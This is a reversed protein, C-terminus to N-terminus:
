KISANFLRAAYQVILNNAPTSDQQLSPLHQACYAMGRTESIPVYYEVTDGCRICVVEPTPLEPAPASPLEPAPSSVLEPAPASPLAPYNLRAITEQLVTVGQAGQLRYRESWDKGSGDDPAPCITVDYGREYLDNRAKESKERGSEDGDFAIIIHGTNAPIWGVELATGIIAIADIGCEKLALADFAGECFVPSGASALAQFNFWGNSHTKYWRLYLGAERDLARAENEMGQARKEKSQLRFVKEKDELAKKHENEDMGPAWLKLSRGVFHMAGEPSSVPFIIHDTWRQLLAYKGSLQIDPVYGVGLASATELNIGRQALYARAREDTLRSQMSDQLSRLLQVEDRQWKAVSPAPASSSSRQGARAIHRPDAVKIIGEAIRARGREINQAATENWERVLVLAKCGHCQGFGSEKNISLSRQNDSGHIHCYTRLWRGRVHAHQYDLENESIVIWEETDIMAARGELRKLSSNVSQM